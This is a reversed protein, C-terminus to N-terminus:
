HPRGARPRRTDIHARLHLFALVVDGDGTLAATARQYERERRQLEPLETARLPKTIFGDM